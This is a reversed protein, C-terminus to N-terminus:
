FDISEDVVLYIPQADPEGGVDFRYVRAGPSAVEELAPPASADFAAASLTLEPLRGEAARQEPRPPRTTAPPEFPSRIAEAPALRGPLDRAGPRLVFLTAGVVLIMALPATMYALRPYRLMEGWGSWRRRRGPPAEGDLREGLREMFLDWEQQTLSDQRLQLF